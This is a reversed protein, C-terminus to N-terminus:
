LSSVQDILKGIRASFDAVDKDRIRITDKADAVDGKL